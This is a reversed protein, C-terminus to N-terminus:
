VHLSMFSVFDAWWDNLPVESVPGNSVFSGANNILIDAHGFTTKVKEWLSAVSKSDKLDTPAALVEIKEDIAHIDKTVADLAEASRAVLVM